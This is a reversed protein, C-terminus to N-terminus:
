PGVIAQATVRARGADPGSLASLVINAERSGIRLCLRANTAVPREIAVDETTLITAPQGADPLSYIATGALNRISIKLTDELHRLDLRFLGPALLVAVRAGTPLERASSLALGGDPLRTELQGPLTSPLSEPPGAAAPQPRAATRASTAGGRLRVEPAALLVAAWDSEVLRGGEALGLEGYAAVVADAERPSVGSVIMQRPTEAFGARVAAHVRAPVNAVITQAAPPAEEILDVRRAEVAVGNLEANRATAEVSREDYDVAVVPKWGLRAAGIALVGTGCGLDAFSGGPELSLLLELCRQTTPHLGTGFASGRDIVIDELRPDAPAPASPPRIVFRGAVVPPDVFQAVLQAPDDPLERESVRVLADGAAGALDARDVVGAVVLEVLPGLSRDYVGAPVLPLVRDLVPEADVAHVHLVIAQM